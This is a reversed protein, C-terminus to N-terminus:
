EAYKLETRKFKDSGGTLRHLSAESQDLEVSAGALSNITADFDETNRYIRFFRGAPRASEPTEIM